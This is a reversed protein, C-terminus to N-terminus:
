RLPNNKSLILYVYPYSDEVDGQPYFILEKVYLSIQQPGDNVDKYMMYVLNGVHPLPMDGPWTFKEPCKLLSSKVEPDEFVYPPMNIHIIM